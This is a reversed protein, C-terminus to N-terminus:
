MIHPEETEMRPLTFMPSSKDTMLNQVHPLPILTREKTLKPFLTLTSFKECRPLVKLTLDIAVNPDLALTKQRKSTVLQAEIKCNMFAPLLTEIRPNAIIPPDKDCNSKAVSPLLM